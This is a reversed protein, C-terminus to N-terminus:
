RSIPLDVSVSCGAFSSDLYRNRKGVDALQELFAVIFVAAVLVSLLLSKLSFM